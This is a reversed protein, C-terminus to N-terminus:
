VLDDNFSSNETDATCGASAVEYRGFSFGNHAAKYFQNRESGYFRFIEFAFITFLSM